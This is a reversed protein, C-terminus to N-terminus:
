VVSKRDLRVCESNLFVAYYVQWCIKFIDIVVLIFVFLIMLYITSSYFKVTLHLSRWFNSFIIKIIVKSRKTVAYNM